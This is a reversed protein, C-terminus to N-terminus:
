YVQERQGFSFVRVDKVRDLGITPFYPPSVRSYMRQDYTFTRGYGTQPTGTRGDFTGFAGYNNEIIGGLLNVSGRTGGRDYDEVGVIGESSMLVGHITVDRPANDASSSQNHGILIDASQTYIGFVNLTDLEDCTAPTVTGNSERIPASSCPPFEYTIDRTIRVEDETALTLQLFGAIAPAATTPDNSSTRAPGGFRSVTGDVFVVGNFDLIPAGDVNTATVWTGTGDDWEQLVRDEAVRHTRTSTSYSTCRGRWDWNVCTRVSAQFYQYTAEPTWEGDSNKTLANGNADAAWIQLDSLSVDNGYHLGAQQAVVDQEYSNSPLPIYESQWDVGGTLEPQNVPNWGFSPNPGLNTRLTNARDYFYAGYSHSTCYEEVQGTSPNTRMARRYSPCGATTVKHGFWPNSFFRFHENTHVPGDFLTRDTFWIDSGSDTTHYNTFLAYQAFTVRGVTFRYEGQLVVNRKYEGLTAESVMV